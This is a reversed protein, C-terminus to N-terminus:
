TTTVTGRFLQKHVGSIRITPPSLRLTQNRRLRPRARRVAPMAAVAWVESTHGQLTVYLKAAAMPRPLGWKGELDGKSPPEFCKNRFVFNMIEPSILYSFEPGRGHFWCCAGAPM